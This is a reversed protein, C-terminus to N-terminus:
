NRKRLLHSFRSPDASVLLKGRRIRVERRTHRITAIRARRAEWLGAYERVPGLVAPHFAPEATEDFRASLLDSKETLEGLARLTTMAKVFLRYGLYGVMGLLALVLVVWIVVWSWWPM